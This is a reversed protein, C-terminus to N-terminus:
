YEAFTVHPRILQRYRHVLGGMAEITLDQGVMAGTQVLHKYTAKQEFKEIAEVAFRVFHTLHQEAEKGNPFLYGAAYVADQLKRIAAQDTDSHRWSALVELAGVMATLTALRRDFLDLRLKERTYRAQLWAFTGTVAVAVLAAFITALPALTNKNVLHEFQLGAIWWYYM